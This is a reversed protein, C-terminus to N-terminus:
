LTVFTNGAKSHHKLKLTLSSSDSDANTCLTPILFYYASDNESCSTGQLFSTQYVWTNPTPTECFTSWIKDHQSTLPDSIESVCGAAQKLILKKSPQIDTRSEDNIYLNNSSNFTPFTNQTSTSMVDSQVPVPFVPNVETLDDSLRISQLKENELVIHVLLNKRLTM